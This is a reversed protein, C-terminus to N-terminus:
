EAETIPESASLFATCLQEPTSFFAAAMCHKMVTCSGDIQTPPVHKLLADCFVGFQEDTLRPLLDRHVADHSTAWDGRTPADGFGVGTPKRFWHDGHPKWGLREAIQRNLDKM